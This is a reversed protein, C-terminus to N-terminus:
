SAYEALGALRLATQVVYQQYQMPNSGHVLYLTSWISSPCGGQVACAGRAIFSSRKQQPMPTRCVKLGGKKRKGNAGKM